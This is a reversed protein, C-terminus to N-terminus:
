ANGGRGRGGRRRSPKASATFLAVERFESAALNGFIGEILKLDAEDHTELRITPGYAGKYFDIRFM